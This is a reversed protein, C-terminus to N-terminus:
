EINVWGKEKLADEKYILAVYVGTLVGGSPIILLAIFESLSTNLYFMLIPAVLSVLILLIFLILNRMSSLLIFKFPKDMYCTACILLGGLLTFFWQGDSLFFIFSAILTFGGYVGPAINVQFPRYEQVLKRM